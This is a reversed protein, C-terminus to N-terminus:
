RWCWWCNLLKFELFSILFYFSFKLTGVGFFGCPWPRWMGKAPVSPAQGYECFHCACWSSYKCDFHCSLNQWVIMVEATLVASEVCITGLGKGGYASHQNVYWGFTLVLHKPKLSASNGSIDSSITCGDPTSASLNSGAVSNFMSSVGNCDLVSNNSCNALYIPYLIWYVHSCPLIM